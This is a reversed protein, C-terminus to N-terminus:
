KDKAVFYQDFDAHVEFVIFQEDAANKVVLITEQSFQNNNVQVEWCCHSCRIAVKAVLPEERFRKKEKKRKKV